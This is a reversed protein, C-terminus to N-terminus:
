KTSLKTNDGSSAKKFPNAMPQGDLTYLTWARHDVDLLNNYMVRNYNLIAESYPTKEDYDYVKGDNGVYGVTDIVPVQQHLAALYKNYKTIDQGAVQMVLTALYNASIEGLDKEPIDYNAWIVFPTQYRTQKEEKSLQDLKKGYLEEFFSEEVSPQHDGFMCIVTPEDINKFYNVFKEFSEDTYKVLSLYREAKPYNGMMNTIHVDEIFNPYTMEYGGHNQMTVNFFFFPQEPNREEYAKQIMGFDYADSIYRRALMNTGPYRTEVNTVFQYSDNTDKYEKLIDPAIINEMAVYESFGMSKYVNPRNWGDAYYPHLAQKSYGQASLTSVMSPQSGKIYSQYVNSGTPLFGLLDGTLFEFESNSTGAGFVPVRLNGRITNEHMSDMFPMFPVNTEVNGITRFDALSENMVVIINPKTGNPKYTNQGTLIDISTDGNPDVGAATLTDNVIQEVKNANYGTPESVHLYKTNLCFNYWVGSHHYGRSQDWFDPKFGHDALVDTGYVTSAIILIYAIAAARVAIKRKRLQPRINVLQTNLALIIGMMLSGMLLQWSLHYSYASAVNMGTKITVIDMPVLPTGRLLDVFYNVMGFIYLVATTLLVTLRYRGCLLFVVLYFLLYAAYNMLFNPTSFAYVFNGNFCEIMQMSAIPMLFFMVTYFRTKYAETTKVRFTLLTGILAVCLFAAGLLQMGWSGNKENIFLRWNWAIFISLTLMVGIAVAMCKKGTKEVSVNQAFSSVGKKIMEFVKRAFNKM